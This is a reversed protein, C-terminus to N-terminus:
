PAEILGHKVASDPDAFVAMATLMPRFGLKEYFGESGRNAYLIVKKHGASLEMLKEIIAKGIGQRQREPHVVVDCLYSCDAGDALARGAGILQGEDFVFCMYRSNSYVLKLHDTSKDGLPAIRYLTSLENWDISSGDYRWQM